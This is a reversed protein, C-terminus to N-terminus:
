QFAKWFFSWKSRGEILPINDIIQKSYLRGTGGEDFRYVLHYGANEIDQYTFGCSEITKRWRVIIFDAKGSLVLDKHQEQMYDTSGNQLTWYKGAPLVKNTVGFGYEGCGANVISPNPVQQIISAITYFDKHNENNNFFVTKFNFLLFHATITIIIALLSSVILKKLSILDISSLIAICLFVFLCSCIAFYYYFHHKLILGFCCISLILPLSKCKNLRRGGWYGSILLLSFEAGVKPEYFVSAWELMYTIFPNNSFQTQTRLLLNPSNASYLGYNSVTSLTNIFYEQIFSNLNDILAFYAIFPLLLLTGGAVCYIMSKWISGNDKAFVIISSLIIILLLAAINFKIMLLASFCVGLTFFKREKKPCETWIISCLEYLSISVFLLSFDEARIEDHFWPNFFAISLLVSSLVAKRNDLFLAATKYSFFYILGYWICSIWFIGLYNTPSLLYGVGYILWLLPGKSDAFDVYPVLGNMWAKGCMFFWASDERSHLDNFYSDPSIFFLVFTALSTFFLWLFLNPYKKFLHKM